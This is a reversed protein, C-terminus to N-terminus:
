EEEDGADMGSLLDGFVDDEDQIEFGADATSRDPWEIWSFVPTEGDQAAVARFFDTQKGHAVDEGWTDVMRTAGHERMLPWARRAHDVYAQRNADPVPAVSGSYYTM